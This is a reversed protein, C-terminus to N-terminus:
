SLTGRRLSLVGPAPRSARIDGPLNLPSANEPSQAFQALQRWWHYTMAQEPWAATRWAQRLVESILLPAAEALPTTQLTVSTTDGAASREHVMQCEALLAAAQEDIFLQAAAAQEATRLIAAEASKGFRGRIPPLLEHRVANRAAVEADQNTEDERSAQGIAALYDAIESRGVGLLPRVAVVSPSLPRTAPMGALGRLGSGRLLRFLITELQDDRHHGLAVFRAGLTEAMRTLIAYRTTRAAEEMGDGRVEAVEGVNAKEIFLPVGLRRCEAALWEADATSQDGRLSHDVHGAFLKGAGGVQQKAALLARLLAVSDPGGSLAVLVHVDSWAAAPWAALLRAPLDTAPSPPM